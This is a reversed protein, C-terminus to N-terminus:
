VSSFVEKSWWSQWGLLLGVLVVCSFDALGSGGVLLLAKTSSSIFAAPRSACPVVRAHLAAHLRLTEEGYMLSTPNPGRKSHFHVLLPSFVWTIFAVFSYLAISRCLLLRKTAM